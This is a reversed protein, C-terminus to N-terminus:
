TARTRVLSAGPEPSEPRGLWHLWSTEQFEWGPLLTPVLGGQPSPFENCSWSLLGSNM